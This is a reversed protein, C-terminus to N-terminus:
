TFYGFGEVRLISRFYYTHLSYDTQRLREKPHKPRILEELDSHGTDDANSCCSGATENNSNHCCAPFHQKAVSM